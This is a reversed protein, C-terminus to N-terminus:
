RSFRVQEAFSEAIADSFSMVNFAPLLPDVSQISQNAASLISRGDTPTRVVFIADAMPAQAIPRYVVAEPVRQTWAYLATGAVGVIEVWPAVPDEGLRLRKGIASRGPWYRDAMTQSIIAVPSTADRDAPGFSRGGRIAIGMSEFFQSSM